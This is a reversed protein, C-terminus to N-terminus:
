HVVAGRMDLLAARAGQTTTVLTFGDCTRGPDDATVGDRDDIDPPVFPNLAPQGREHWARGGTFAQHLFDYSPLQFFMVAAGLVYGLGAVGLVSLCALVKGVHPVRIPVPSYLVRGLGAWSSNLSRRM